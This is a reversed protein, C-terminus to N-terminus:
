GGHIRGASIAPVCRANSTVSTGNAEPIRDEGRSLSAVSKNRLAERMRAYPFAFSPSDSLM